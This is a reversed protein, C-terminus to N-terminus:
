EPQWPAAFVALSASRRAVERDEEIAQLVVGHGCKSLEHNLVLRNGRLGVLRFPMRWSQAKIKGLCEGTSEFQLRHVDQVESFRRTDRGPIITTALEKADNKM